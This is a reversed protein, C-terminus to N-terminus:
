TVSLARLKFGVARITLLTTSSSAAGLIRLAPAVDVTLGVIIPARRRALSSIRGSTVSNRSWISRSLSM